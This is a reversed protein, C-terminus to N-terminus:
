IRAISAHFILQEKFGAGHHEKTAGLVCHRFQDAGNLLELSRANFLSSLEPNFWLPVFFVFANRRPKQTKTTFNWTIFTRM